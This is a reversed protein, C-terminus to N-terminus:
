KIKRVIGVYNLYDNDILEVLVEKGLKDKDYLVDSVKGVLLGKEVEGFGSTYVLDGVKIDSYKNLMTIVGNNLNGYVDGIVVSVNYDSTLLKAYAVNNNYKYVIGVLGNENVVADGNKINKDKNSIVIEDYFSYVDRYLVKSVYFYSSNLKFDSLDSLEKKLFMNEKLIMENDIISSDDYKLYNILYVVIFSFTFILLKFLVRKRKLYIVM